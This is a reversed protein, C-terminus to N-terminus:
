ARIETLTGRSVESITFIIITMIIVIITIIIVIIIAIIIVIILFIIFVWFTIVTITAIIIIFTKTIIITIFNHNFNHGVCELKKLVLKIYNHTFSAATDLIKLDNSLKNWITLGMFSISKQGLNSKRLPTKLAM